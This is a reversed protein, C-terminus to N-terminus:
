EDVKQQKLAQHESAKDSQTIDGKEELNQDIVEIGSNNLSGAKEQAM